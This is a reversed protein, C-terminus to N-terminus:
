RGSRAMLRRMRGLTVASGVMSVHARRRGDLRAEVRSGVRDPENAPQHGEHDDERVGSGDAAEVTADIQTTLPAVLLREAADRYAAEEEEGTIQDRPAAGVGARRNAEEPS